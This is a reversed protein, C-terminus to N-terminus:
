LCKEAIYNGLEDVYSNGWIQNKIQESICKGVNWHLLILEENVKRFANERAKQILDIVLVFNKSLEDM